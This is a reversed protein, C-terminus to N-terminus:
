ATAETGQSAAETQAPFVEAWVDQIRKYSLTLGMRGALDVVTQWAPKV